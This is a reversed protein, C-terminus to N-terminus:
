LVVCSVTSLHVTSTPGVTRAPVAKKDEQVHCLLVHLICTSIICSMM